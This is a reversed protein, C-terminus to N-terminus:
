NASEINKGVKVQQDQHKGLDSSSIVRAGDVLFPTPGWVSYVLAAALSQRFSREALTTVRVSGAEPAVLTYRM